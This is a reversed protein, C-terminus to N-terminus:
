AVPLRGRDPDYARALPKVGCARRMEFYTPGGYAEENETSMGGAPMHYHRTGHEYHRSSWHLPFKAVRGLVPRGEDDM